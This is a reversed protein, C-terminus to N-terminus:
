ASRRCARHVIDFLALTEPSSALFDLRSQATAAFRAAAERAQDICGSARLGSRIEQAVEDSVFGKTFAQRILDGGDSELGFILPLTLVGRKLDNCSEKGSVAPDSTLDIIDDIIQFACGLELGFRLLNEQAQPPAQALIAGAQCAVGILSATKRSIHNIYDDRTVTLDFLRDDQAVEGECVLEIAQNIIAPIGLDHYNLAAKNARTFLYDGALVASHLGRILHVTPMGRRERAGDIVDDHVLSAMHVLEIAAAVNLVAHVDLRTNFTKSCAGATWVTLLPRLRKGRTTMLYDIIPSLPGADEVLRSIRAELSGPLDELRGLRGTAAEM